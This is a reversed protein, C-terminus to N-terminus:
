RHGRPHGAGRHGVPRAHRAARHTRRGPIRAPHVSRAVLRPAARDAMGCRCTGRGVAQGRDPPGGRAAAAHALHAARRMEDSTVIADGLIRRCAADVAAFRSEVLTQPLAVAWSSPIAAHVLEPNFNFFTSVVVDAQVAGM